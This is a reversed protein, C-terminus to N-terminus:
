QNREVYFQVHHHFQKLPEELLDVPFANEIFIKWEIFINVRKLIHLM